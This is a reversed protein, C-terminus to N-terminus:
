AKPVAIGGVRCLWLIRSLWEVTELHRSAERISGGWAYVGHGRVIVAPVPLQRAALV